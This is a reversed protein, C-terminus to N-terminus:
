PRGASFDRCANQWLSLGPSADFYARSFFSVDRFPKTTAKIAFICNFMAYLQLKAICFAIRCCDWIQMVILNNIM